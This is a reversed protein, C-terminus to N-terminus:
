TDYIPVYYSYVDGKVPPFPPPFPADLDGVVGDKRTEIRHCTTNKSIGLSSSLTDKEEVEEDTEGEEDTSSHHSDNTPSPGLFKFGDDGDSLNEASSVSSASHFIVREKRVRIFGLDKLNDETVAYGIINGKKGRYEVTSIGQQGYSGHRCNTPMKGSAVKAM